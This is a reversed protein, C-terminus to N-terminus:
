LKSKKRYWRIVRVDSVIFSSLVFLIIIETLGVGLKWIPTDTGSSSHSDPIVLSNTDAPKSKAVNRDHNGTKNDLNGIGRPADSNGSDARATVKHGGSYDSYFSGGSNSSDGPDTPDLPDVPDIAAVSVVPDAPNVPDVADDPDVQTVPDVDDASNAPDVTDGSNVPDDPEAVPDGPETSDGPEVVPDGPETSDGPEVPGGPETPDGPEVPGGPEAPDDSEEPDLDDIITLYYSISSSEGQAREPLYVTVTYTGGAAWDVQSFDTEYDYVRQGKNFPYRIWIYFVYGSASEVISAKESESKGKLEKLGVTVDHVRMCYSTDMHHEEGTSAAYVPLSMLIICFVFALGAVRWKRLRFATTSYKKNKHFKNNSLFGMLVHM